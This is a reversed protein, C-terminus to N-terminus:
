GAQALDPAEVHAGVLQGLLPAGPDGAGPHELVAVLALDDALAVVGPGPLREDAAGAQARLRHDLQPEVGGAVPLDQEAGAGLAGADGDRAVGLAAGDTHDVEDAVASTCPVGRTHSSGRGGRPHVPSRRRTLPFCTSCTAM